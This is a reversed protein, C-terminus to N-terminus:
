EMERVAMIGLLSGLVAIAAGAGAVGAMALGVVGHTYDGLAPGFAAADGAAVAGSMTAVAEGVTNVGPPHAWGFLGALIIWLGAVIPILVLLYSAGKGRGRWLMWVIACVLILLGPWFYAHYLPKLTGVCIMLAGVQAMIFFITGLFQAALMKKMAEM